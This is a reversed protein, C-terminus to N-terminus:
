NNLILIAKNADDDTLGYKYNTRVFNNINMDMDDLIVWKELNNNSPNQLWDNIENVRLISNQAISSLESNEDTKGIVRNNIGFINCVKEFMLLSLQRNRHSTTLCIYSDTNDIIKKLNIFNNHSFMNHYESNNENNLVGDFDLFIVKM